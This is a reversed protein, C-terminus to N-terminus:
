DKGREETWERLEVLKRDIDGNVYIGLIRWIEKGVRIRGTIIGECEMNEGKREILDRKIGLIMGGM